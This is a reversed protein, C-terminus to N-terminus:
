QLFKGLHKPLVFRTIAQEFLANHAVIIVSEDKLYKALLKGNRLDSRHSNWERKPAWTHVKAKPLQARTGVRFSACLIETSPHKAYEYSGVKKIDAESFTEYDLIMFVQKDSYMSGGLAIKM